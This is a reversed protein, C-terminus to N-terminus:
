LREIWLVDGNSYRRTESKVTIGFLANFSKADDFEQVEMLVTYKSLEKIFIERVETEEPLVVYWRQGVNLKLETGSFITM